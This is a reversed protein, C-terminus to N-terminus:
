PIAKRVRSSTYRLLLSENEASMQDSTPVGLRRQILDEIWLKDALWTIMAERFVRRNRPYCFRLFNSRRILKRSMKAGLATSDQCGLAISVRPMQLKPRPEEATRTSSFEITAAMSSSFSLREAPVTRMGRSAIARQRLCRLAFILSTCTAAKGRRRAM